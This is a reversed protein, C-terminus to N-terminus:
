WSWGDDLHERLLTECKTDAEEPSSFLSKSVSLAGIPKANHPFKLEGLETAYGGSDPYTVIFRYITEQEAGRKVLVYPKLPTTM